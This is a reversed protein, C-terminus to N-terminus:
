ADFAHWHLAFRAETQTPQGPYDVSSSVNWEGRAFGHVACLCQVVEEFAQDQWVQALDQITRDSGFDAAGGLKGSLVVARAAYLEKLRSRGIKAGALDILRTAVDVAKPNRLALNGLTQEVNSELANDSKAPQEGM